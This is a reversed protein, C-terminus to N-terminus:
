RSLLMRVGAAGFAAALIGDFWRRSRAHIRRASQTSFLLAYACSIVAGIMLCGSLIPLADARQADNSLALTIILLWVFGARM